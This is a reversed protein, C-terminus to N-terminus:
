QPPDASDAATPNHAACAQLGNIAQARELDYASADPLALAAQFQQRAEDRRWATLHARGVRCRIDMEVRGWQPENERTMSRRVTLARGFYPMAADPHGEQHAATGLRVLTLALLMLDKAATALTAAEHLLPQAEHPQGLAFHADAMCLLTRSQVRPRDVMRARALAVRFCALAEEQREQAIRTFGLTSHASSAGWDDSRPFVEFATKIHAEAAATDGSQLAVAGLGTMARALEGPEGLRRSLSAAEEFWHRAPDVCSAFLETMGMCIRLAAMMRRDGTHRASEIAVGLVARADHHRGRGILYDTQAEAISCALGKEGLM